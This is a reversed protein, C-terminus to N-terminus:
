REIRFWTVENYKRQTSGVETCRLGAKSEAKQLCAVEHNGVGPYLWEERLWCPGVLMDAICIGEPKLVQSASELMTSIQHDAAHMLLDAILVYDFRRGFPNFNFDGNDDFIPRRMKWDRPRVEELRAMEVLWLNPEIGFYHNPKLYDILWRGVRLPGCGFDLLRHQPLLGQDKLVQMADTGDAAPGEWNTGYAVFDRHSVVGNM